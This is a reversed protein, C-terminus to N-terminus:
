RRNEVIDQLLELRTELEEVKDELKSYLYSLEDLLDVEHQTQVLDELEWKISDFKM